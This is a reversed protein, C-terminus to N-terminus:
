TLSPDNAFPHSAEAAFWPPMTRRLLAARIARARPRADSYSILAFPGIEGPRHCTQCRRQFIPQIDRHFTPPAAAVHAAAALTLAIAGAIAARAVM